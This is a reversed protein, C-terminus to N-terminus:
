TRYIDEWFQRAPVGVQMVIKEAAAVAGGLGVEVRLPSGCDACSAEIVGPIGLAAPVGLADWACIAPWTWRGARVTFDSPEACFPNYALIEPSGRKPIFVRGEIMRLFSEEVSARDRGLRKSVDSITPITGRDRISAAIANRADRDFAAEDKVARDAYPRERPARARRGAM